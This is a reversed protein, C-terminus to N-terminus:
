KGHFVPERKELFATIGERYDASDYVERRLAQIREYAEPNLPHAGALVRLEEKLIRQVLPSTRSIQRALQMTFSELEERPVVHNIVGCAAMREAPVPQATFLM